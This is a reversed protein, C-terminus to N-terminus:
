DEDASMADINPILQYLYAISSLFAKSTTKEDVTHINSDPVMLAATYRYQRDSLKGYYKMDMNGTSLFPSVYVSANGHPNFLPQQYTNVTTGAIIEYLVDGATPSIKTPELSSYLAVTFGGHKGDPKVVEKAGDAYVVSVSLDNEKALDLVHELVHDKTANVSSHLGIRHNIVMTAQEPLANAKVGSNFIDMAQTTQFLYAINLNSSTAQLFKSQSKSKIAKSLGPLYEPSYKAACQLFELAPNNTTITPEYPDNYLSVGLKSMIVIAGGDVPPISGHGSETSDLTIFMDVYGKESPIVLGIYDGEPTKTTLGGEDTIGYLGDDGYREYLFDALKAGGKSGMAEEDFGISLIIPRTTPEFGDKILKNLSEFQSILLLKCDVVGRGYIYDNTPDYVGAFPPHTWKDISTPDVPVVDQHSLYAVPKKGKTNKTEWTMLMGHYNVKEFTFKEFVLPYTKQLYDQFVTFNRWLFDDDKGTPDPSNDFVQTSIQVAGSLHSISSLKFTKDNLIENLSGPFVPTIANYAGCDKCEPLKLDGKRIFLITFLLILALAAVASISVPKKKEKLKKLAKKADIPIYGAM